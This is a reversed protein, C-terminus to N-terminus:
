EDTEGAIMTEIELAAQEHFRSRDVQWNAHFAAINRADMVTQAVAASLGAALDLALVAVDAPMFRRSTPQAPAFVVDSFFDDDDDV